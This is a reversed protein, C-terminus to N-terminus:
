SQPSAFIMVLCLHTHHPEHKKQLLAGFAQFFYHCYKAGFINPRPECPPQYDGAFDELWATVKRTTLLQELM